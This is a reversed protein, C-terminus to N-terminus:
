SYNVTLSFPLFLFFVLWVTIHRFLCQSIHSPTDLIKRVSDFFLYVVVFIFVRQSAVCLTIATFFVLSVWLIAICSCKTASLAVMQLERELRGTRFRKSVGEEAQFFLIQSDTVCIPSEKTIIGNIRLNNTSVTGDAPNIYRRIVPFIIIFLHSPPRLM